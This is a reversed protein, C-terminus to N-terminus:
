EKEFVLPHADCYLLILSDSLGKLESSHLSFDESIELAESEKTYCGVINWDEFINAALNNFRCVVAYLTTFDAPGEYPVSDEILEVTECKYGELCDESANHLDIEVYSTYVPAGSYPEIYADQYERETYNVLVEM